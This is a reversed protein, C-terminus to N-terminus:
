DSPVIVTEDRDREGLGIVDLALPAARRHM